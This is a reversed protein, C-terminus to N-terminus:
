DGGARARGERVLRPIGATSVDVAGPRRYGAERAGIDLHLTAADEAALRPAPVSTFTAVAKVYGHCRECVDVRDRSRPERGPSASAPRVDEAVL